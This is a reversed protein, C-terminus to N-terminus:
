GPVARRARRALARALALRQREGGSLRPAPREALERLGVLELLAAIRAGRERRPVGATALAYRLNDAVSRRLM